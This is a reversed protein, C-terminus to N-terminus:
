GLAGALPGRKQRLTALLADASVPKTLHADFSAELAQAVDSDRGYGTMAVLRGRYGAERLRRALEYGSMGPLGIDLVVTDPAFAAVEEVVGRPEYMVHVEYGAAELLAGTTDAADENDDVLLVRGEGARAKPAAPEESGTPHPVLPFWATFRSGHGPGASEGRVSGGHMEVLSRVIALGLGLGGRARDSEQPAQYFLDFAHEAVEPAMGQGDDRVEIAVGARELRLALAIHGGVPTFKIANGLLNNLVQAIRVEDGEIWALAATPEIAVDLTREHLLPRVTEAAQTVLRAPQLPKMQMALRKGTIRSVDLLDDVLRKMHGLQREIIRREAATGPDGKREMLWMANSIPALPNRLEHGLVALFEDKARAADEAQQQAKDRQAAAQALAAALDDLEAVGLPEIAVQQGEGIATAAAKLKDIPAAVRLAAINALWAALGLAILVGVFMGAVLPWLAGDVESQAIGVAVAWNWTRLRVFGTYVPVDELTLTPGSGEMGGSELLAQLTPSPRRVVNEQTRAVRQGSQDFIAVVWTEPVNQRHLLALLADTPVVATLVYAVKKDVVVPLRVAFAPGHGQTGQALIGVVPERTEIARRLSAPEVARLDATALPQATTFLIKGSADALVMARWDRQEVIRVGLAHLQELRGQQLEDTEAVAALVSVTARLEADVAAALARSVEVASREAQQRRDQALWLLAFAAFLLLPLLGSAALQFLRYRIPRAPKM